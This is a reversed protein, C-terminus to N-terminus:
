KKVMFKPTRPTFSTQRIEEAPLSYGPAWIRVRRDLSLPEEEQIMRYVAARAAGRRSVQIMVELTALSLVPLLSEPAQNDPYEKLSEELMADVEAELAIADPTKTM